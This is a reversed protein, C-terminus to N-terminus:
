GTTTLGGPGNPQRARTNKKRDQVLKLANRVRVDDFPPMDTRMVIPTIWGSHIPGPYQDEDPYMQLEAIVGEGPALLDAEDGILAALRAADDWGDTVIVKDLYPLPKM